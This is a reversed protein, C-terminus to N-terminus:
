LTREARRRVLGDKGLVAVLPYVDRQACFAVDDRLEKSSLLRQGNRSRSIGGALDGRSQRFLERAIHASDAILGAQYQGWVLDCLAGAGLADEFAAEELTGSCVILLKAAGAKQLEAATAALNLFSAALTARAQQCARLARTGNTTTMAITRGHVAAPTFERPSNGLDFGIGGTLEPGIRVGDREGALLLDPRRQRAALADAIEEVPLIAEAGNWLATIMSTTARLVDFVVCWTESLDRQRLSAFEAPAFLVELTTM